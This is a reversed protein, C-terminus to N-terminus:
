ELEFAYYIQIVMFKKLRHWLTYSSCLAISTHLYLHVHTNLKEVFVIYFFLSLPIGCTRYIMYSICKIFYWFHAHCTSFVYNLLVYALTFSHLKEVIWLNSLPLYSLSWNRITALYTASELTQHRVLYSHM